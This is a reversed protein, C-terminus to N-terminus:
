VSQKKIGKAKLFGRFRRDAALKWSLFLGRIGDTKGDSIRKVPM